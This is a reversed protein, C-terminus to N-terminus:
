GSSSSMRRVKNKLLVPQAQVPAHESAAKTTFFSSIMMLFDVCLVLTISTTEISV